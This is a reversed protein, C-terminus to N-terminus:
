AGAKPAVLARYTAAEAAMTLGLSFPALILFLGILEPMHSDLLAMRANIAVAMANPDSPLPAVLAPGGIALTAAAQIVLLPVSVGLLVGLMRWINGAM